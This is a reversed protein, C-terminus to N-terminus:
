ILYFRRIYVNFLVLDIFFVALSISQIYYVYKSLSWDVKFQSLELSVITFILDIALVFYLPSARLIKSSKRTMKIAKLIVLCISVVYMISVIKMNCFNIFVVNSLLIVILTFFPKLFGGFVISIILSAPLILNYLRNIVLENLGLEHLLSNLFLVFFYMLFELNKSLFNRDLSFFYIVRFFLISVLAFESYHYWDM